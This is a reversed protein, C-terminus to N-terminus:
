VPVVTDLTGIYLDGAVVDLAPVFADHKDAIVAYEQAVVALLDQHGFRLELVELRRLWPDFWRNAMVLFPNVARLGICRCQAIEVVGALQDLM